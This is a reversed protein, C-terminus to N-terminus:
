HFVKWQNIMHPCPGSRFAKIWGWKGNPNSNVGWSYTHTGSKTFGFPRSLFRNQNEMKYIPSSNNPEHNEYAGLLFPYMEKVIGTSTIKINKCCDDKRKPKKPQSKTQSYGFFEGEQAEKMIRPESKVEDLSHEINGSGSVLDVIAKIDEVDMDTKGEYKELVKIALIFVAVLGIMVMGVALFPRMKIFCKQALNLDAEHDVNGKHIISGSRASCSGDCNNLLSKHSTSCWSGYLHEEPLDKPLMRNNVYNEFSFGNEGNERRKRYSYIDNVPGVSFSRRVSASRDALNESISFSGSPRPLPSAPAHPPPAHPPSYRLIHPSQPEMKCYNQTKQSDLTSNGDIDVYDHINSCRTHKIKSYVPAEDSTHESHM